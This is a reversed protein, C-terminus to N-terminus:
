TSWDDEEKKFKSLYKSRIESFGYSKILQILILKMDSTFM